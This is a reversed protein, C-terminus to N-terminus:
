NKKSHSYLLKLNSIKWKKEKIYVVEYFSEYTMKKINNKNTESITYKDEYVGLSLSVVLKNDKNQYNNIKYDFIEINERVARRGNKELYNMQNEFQKYINSDLISKLKDYNLDTFYKQMDIYLKKSIKEFDDEDLFNPIKISQKKIENKKERKQNDNKKNKILLENKKNFVIYYQYGLIFIMILTVIINIISFFFINLLISILIWLLYLYNMYTLKLNNYYNFAM